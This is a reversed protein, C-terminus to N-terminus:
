EVSEPKDDRSQEGALLKALDILSLFAMLAAALPMVLYINNMPIRLSPSKQLSQMNMYTSGIWTLTALFAITVLIGAGTV